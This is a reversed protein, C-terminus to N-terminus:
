VGTQNDETPLTRATEMHAETLHYFGNDDPWNGSKLSEVAREMGEKRAAVCHDYCGVGEEEVGRAYGEQRAETLKARLFDRAQTPTGSDLIDAFDNLVADEKDEDRPSDYHTVKAPEDGVKTAIFKPEKSNSTTMTFKPENAREEPTRSDCYNQGTTNHTMNM